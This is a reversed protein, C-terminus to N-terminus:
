AQVEKANEAAALESLLAKAAEAEAKWRPRQTELWAAMLMKLKPPETGAMLAQHVQVRWGDALTRAEGVPVRVHEAFRELCEDFTPLRYELTRWPKAPDIREPPIPFNGESNGAHYREGAGGYYGALAYWANEAAHMPAGDDDCLHLAVVPALKPWHQLVDEHLCGFANCDNARPHRVEATVSFYPRENGQIHHLGAEVTIKYGRGYAGQLMTSTRTATFKHTWTDM